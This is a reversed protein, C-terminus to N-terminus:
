RDHAELDSTALGSAASVSLEDMACITRRGGREVSGRAENQSRLKSLEGFRGTTKEGKM